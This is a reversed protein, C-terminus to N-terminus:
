GVEVVEIEDNGLETADGAQLGWLARGLPSAPSVVIVGHVQSGDGGPLIVCRRDGSEDGRYSVLAGTVAKSRPAEGVRDLLQLAEDLEGLRAQLGAILYGSSTVAAREGRNAPRHDGDVRTGSRAADASAALSARRERLQQTWAAIIQAKRM